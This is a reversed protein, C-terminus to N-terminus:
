IAYYVDIKASEVFNAWSPFRAKSWLTVVDGLKLDRVFKGNGTAKGRGQRTLKTAAEVDREPDVDDTHSWVVRHEVVEKEATVNCQVKLDESPHLNHKFIYANQVEGEWGVEPIVTCLDDLKLSPQPSQQETREPQEPSSTQAPSTKCWRELGVEFWTWSGNYTGHDERVGSFGQDRSRITFVIRRCPQALISIPSAILQQFDDASFEEGPPQPKLPTREIPIDNAASSVRKWNHLGLPTSRLLFMNELSKDSPRHFQNNGRAIVTTGNLETTTHPWYEAVDVIRDIIEPPFSLAKTLMAKVVIVDVVSPEYQGGGSSGTTTAMKGLTTWVSYLYYAFVSAGLTVTIKADITM